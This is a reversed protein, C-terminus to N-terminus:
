LVEQFFSDDLCCSLLVAIDIQLIILITRFRAAQWSTYLYKNM